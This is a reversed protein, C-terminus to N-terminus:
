KFWKNPGYLRSCHEYINTDINKTIIDMTCMGAENAKTLYTYMEDESGFYFSVNLFRDYQDKTIIEQVLESSTFYKILNNQIEQNLYSIFRTEYLPHLHFSKSLNNNLTEILKKIFDDSIYDDEQAFSINIDLGKLKFSITVDRYEDSTKAYTLKISNADISVENDTINIFQLLLNKYAEPTEEYEFGEIQYPLTFYSNEYLEDIVEAPADARKIIEIQELSFLEKSLEM